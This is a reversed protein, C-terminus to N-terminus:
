DDTSASYVMEIFDACEIAMSCLLETTTHTVSAGMFMRIDLSDRIIVIMDDCLALADGVRGLDFYIRCENRRGQLLHVLFVDHGFRSVLNIDCMASRKLLNLAGGIHGSRFVVYAEASRQFAIHTVTLVSRRVCPVLARAQRLMESAAFNDGSRARTLAERRLNSANLFGRFEDATCTSQVVDDAITSFGLRVQTM